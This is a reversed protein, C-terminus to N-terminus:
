RFIRKGGFLRGYQGHSCWASLLTALHDVLEKQARFLPFSCSNLRAQISRTHLQHIRCNALAIVARETQPEKLFRTIEAESLKAPFEQAQENGRSLSARLYSYAELTTTGTGLKYKWPRVAYAMRQIAPLQESHRKSCDEFCDQYLQGIYQGLTTQRIQQNEADAAPQIM